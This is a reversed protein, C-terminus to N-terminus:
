PFRIVHLKGALTDSTDNMEHYWAQNAIIDSARILADRSSDRFDLHVSGRMNPFIPSHFTNYRFNITGIKFEEEIGERLEYRGDTATSHEDFRIFIDDVESPDLVGGSILKGFCKKLGVKYVYDLYRQKSKKNDFIRDNVKKQDIM